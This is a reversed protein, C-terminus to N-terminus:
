GCFCRVEWKRHLMKLAPSDHTQQQPKQHEKAVSVAAPMLPLPFSDDNEGYSSQKNALSNRNRLEGYNRAYKALKEDLDEVFIQGNKVGVALKPEEVTKKPHFISNREVNMSYPVKNDHRVVVSQGVPLDHESDSDYIDFSRYMTNQKPKLYPSTPRVSPKSQVALIPRDMIAARSPRINEENEHQQHDQQQRRRHCRMCFVANCNPCVDIPKHCYGCRLNTQRCFTCLGAARDVPSSLLTSCKLCNNENIPLNNRKRECFACVSEILDNRCRKCYQAAAPPLPPVPPPGLEEEASDMFLTRNAAAYHPTSNYTTDVAPPYHASSSFYKYVKPNPSDTAIKQVATIRQQERGNESQAKREAYPNYLKHDNELKSLLHMRRIHNHENNIRM